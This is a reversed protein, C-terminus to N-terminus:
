VGTTEQRLDPYRILPGQAKAPLHRPAILDHALANPQLRHDLRDEMGMEHRLARERVDEARFAAGPQQPLQQGIVLAGRDLAMNALIVSQRVIKPDNFALECAVRQAACLRLSEHRYRPDVHHDGNSQEGCDPRDIAKCAGSTEDAKQAKVGTSM